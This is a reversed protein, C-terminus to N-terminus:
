AHWAAPCFAAVSTDYLKTAEGDTLAHPGAATMSALWDARPQALDCIRHATALLDAAQEPSLDTAQGDFLDAFFAADATPQPQADQPTSSAAPSGTHPAPAAPAAHTAAHAPTTGHIALAGMGLAALGLAILAAAAALLTRAYHM